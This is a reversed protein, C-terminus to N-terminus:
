RAGGNQVLIMRPGFADTTFRGLRTEVEVFVVDANQMGQAGIDAVLEGGSTQLPTWTDSGAPRRARLEVVSTRGEPDFWRLWAVVDRGTKLAGGTRIALRWRGRVYTLVCGEIDVQGGLRRVINDRVPDPLFVWDAKSRAAAPLTVPDAVVSPVHLEGFLENTRAFSILFRGMMSFQSRYMRIAQAKRRTEMPSLRLGSWRTDLGMLEDPPALAQTLHEGQPRPWAGRHVIYYRIRSGTEAAHGALGARHVALTAFASVAAHDRHDDAPHPALVLTPRFEAIEHILRELVRAGCYPDGYAVAEQYPVALTRTSKPRAPVGPDWNRRWLTAMIGDPFGLFCVDELPVGLFRCVARAESMRLRGFSMFEDPSARLVRYQREVGYRFGDGNTVFVVRVAAGARRAQQILGACALIEDDPHPSIVLIRDGQQPSHADLHFALAGRRSEPM